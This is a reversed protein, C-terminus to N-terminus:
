PKVGNQAIYSLLEPVPEFWEGHRRVFAFRQHLETELEQGAGPVIALITLKIPCMRQIEAFRSAVKGTFGIKILGGAVAQVFYVARRRDTRVAPQLRGNASVRRGSDVQGQGAAILEARVAAVTPHSVGTRRAHERDSLSPDTRLSAVVAARRQAPDLHRRAANLTFALGRKAEETLDPVVERPPDIGLEDAIRARHHGDLIRGDEDVVIPHRMGNAAIDARLAEYEADSLPPLFQYPASM